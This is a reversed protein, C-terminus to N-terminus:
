SLTQRLNGAKDPVDAHVIRANRFGGVDPQTFGEPGGHDQSSRSKRYCTTGPRTGAFQWNYWHRNVDSICGDAFSVTKKCHEANDIEKEFSRSQRPTRGQTITKLPILALRWFGGRAVMLSHNGPM